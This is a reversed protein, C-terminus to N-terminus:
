NQWQQRLATQIAYETVQAATLGATQQVDADTTHEQGIIRNLIDCRQDENPLGLVFTADIRGPRTSGKGNETPRGLAEDLKEHHNTTLVIFVGDCTQIGGMANLLCDFTLVDRHDNASAVNIRGDFTGDIDEILAMCPTREQMDQWADLFKENDLSSLDFAFVPLDAAQALARALSTKGTGPPGYYLHGRRWPIGRKQYWSKLGLWREFDAKAAMGQHCLAMASFPEEPQPAGIESPLWHLLKQSPRLMNSPDTPASNALVGGTRSGETRSHCGGIRRVYYRNGTTQRTITAKLARDILESAKIQWRLGTIVVLQDPYNPSSPSTPACFLLFRGDIWCLRPQAPSTEFAVEAVRELPRVWTSASSINLDGWNIIKGDTLLYDFVATRVEGSLTVRTIFLARVRNFLGRIHSWLATIGAFGALTAIDTM